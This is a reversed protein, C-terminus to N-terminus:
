EDSGRKMLVVEFRLWKLDGHGCTEVVLPKM